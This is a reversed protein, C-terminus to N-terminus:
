ESALLVRLYDCGGEKGGLLLATRMALADSPDRKLVAIVQALTTSIEQAVHLFQHGASTTQFSGGPLPLRATPFGMLHCAHELEERTAWGQQHYLRQWLKDYIEM